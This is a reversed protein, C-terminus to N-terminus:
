NKDSFVDIVFQDQLFADLFLGIAADSEKSVRGNHGYAEILGVSRAALNIVLSGSYDMRFRTLTHLTSEPALFLWGIGRGHRTIFFDAHTRGNADQRGRAFRQFAQPWGALFPHYVPTRRSASADRMTGQMVHKRIVRALDCSGDWGRIRGITWADSEYQLSGPDPITVHLEDWRRTAVFNCIGRVADPPPKISSTVGLAALDMGVIASAPVIM